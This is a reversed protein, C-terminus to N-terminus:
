ENMVKSLHLIGCDFGYQNIGIKWNIDNECSKVLKYLALLGANRMHLLSKVKNETRSLISNLNSINKVNVTHLRLCGDVVSGM